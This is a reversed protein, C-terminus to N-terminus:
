FDGCDIILESLDLKINGGETYALKANSDVTAGSGEGGDFHQDTEDVAAFEAGQIATGVKQNWTAASTKLDDVDAEIGDIKTEVNGSLEAIAGSTIGSLSDVLSIVNGSLEADKQDSYKKLGVLTDTDASTNDSTGIVASKANEIETHTISSYAYNQKIGDIDNNITTVKSDTYASSLGSLIAIQQDTYATSSTYASTVSAASATAIKADVQETTSYDDVVSGSLTELSGSLTDIKGNITTDEAELADIKQELADDSPLSEVNAVSGQFKYVNSLRDDIYTVVNGSFASVTGSLSDIRGGLAEEASEARTKEAGIATEANGSLTDVLDKAYNKAGNITDATTADSDDGILDTKAQNYAYGSAAGVFEKTAYDSEVLGSFVELADVRSDLGLVDENVESIQTAVYASTLGSLENFKEDTYKKAGKVTNDSSEDGDTGVVATIASDVGVAVDEKTAYNTEVYGSFTELNSVRSKLESLDGGTVGDIAAVVSGSLSTIQSDTYGSAAEIAAGKAAEIEAHTNASLAYDNTVTASVAEIVNNINNIQSEIAGQSTTVAAAIETSVKASSIFPAFWEGYDGGSGSTGSSVKILLEPSEGNHRVVIEGFSVEALSPMNTKGGTHYNILKQKTRAM